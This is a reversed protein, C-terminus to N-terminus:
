EYLSELAVTAREEETLTTFMLKDVGLSVGYKGMMTWVTNPRAVCVVSSSSPVGGDEIAEYAEKDEFGNVMHFVPSNFRSNVRIKVTITWSKSGDDSVHEKIPSTWVSDIEKDESLRDSVSAKCVDEVARLDNILDEDTTELTINRTTSTEPDFYKSDAGFTSVAPATVSGIRLTPPSKIKGFFNGNKSKEWSVSTVRVSSPTDDSSRKITKTPKTM